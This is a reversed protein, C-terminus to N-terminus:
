TPCVFRPLSARRKDTNSDCHSAARPYGSQAMAADEGGVRGETGGGVKDTFSSDAIGAGAGTAVPAAVPAMITSSNDLLPTYDDKANSQKPRKVQNDRDSTQLSNTSPISHPPTAVFTPFARRVVVLLNGALSSADSEEPFACGLPFMQNRQVHCRILVVHCRVPNCHWAIDM